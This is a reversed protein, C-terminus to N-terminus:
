DLHVERNSRGSQGSVESTGVQQNEWSEVLQYGFAFIKENLTLPAPASIPPSDFNPSKTSFPTNRPYNKPSM